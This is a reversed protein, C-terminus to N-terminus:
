RYANPNDQLYKGIEKGLDRRFEVVTKRSENMADKWEINFLRVLGKVNRRLISQLLPRTLKFEETTTTPALTTANIGASATEDAKLNASSSKPPVTPKKTKKPQEAPIAENVIQSIQQIASRTDNFTEYTVRALTWFFGPRQKKQPTQQRILRQQQQAARKLRINGTNSTTVVQFDFKNLDELEFYKRAVREKELALNSVNAECSVLNLFIAAVLMSLMVIACFRLNM